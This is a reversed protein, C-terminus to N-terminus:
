PPFGAPWKMLKWFKTINGGSEHRSWHVPGDYLILIKERLQAPFVVSSSSALTIQNAPRCGSISLEFTTNRGYIAGATTPNLSIAM